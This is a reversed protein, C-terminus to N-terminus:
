NNSGDAVDAMEDQEYGSLDERDATAEDILDKSVTDPSVPGTVVPAAASSTRASKADKMPVQHPGDASLPRHQGAYQSYVVALIVLTLFLGFGFGIVRRPIGFITNTSTDM